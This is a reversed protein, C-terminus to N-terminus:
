ALHTFEAVVDEYVKRKFPIVLGPLRARQEWRWLDFEPKEGGGPNLVDIESDLGDFRFAFWKQTQGRYQGKWASRMLHQPLDYNLWRSAEALLTVTRVGTEEFLERRAAAEPTENADIGGQPMQWEHGEAVHEGQKKNARRGILALGQHNLLMIGVCRRYPPDLTM